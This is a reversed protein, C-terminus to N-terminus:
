GAAVRSLLHAAIVAFGSATIAFGVARRLGHAVRALPTARTTATSGAFGAAQMTTMMRIM